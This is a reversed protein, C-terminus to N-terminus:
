RGGLEENSALEEMTWEAGAMDPGDCGYEADYRRRDREAYYGRWKPYHPELLMEAERLRCYLRMTALNLGDIRENCVGVVENVEQNIETACEASVDYRVRDNEGRALLGAPVGVSLAGLIFAAILRATM